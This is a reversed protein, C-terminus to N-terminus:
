IASRKFADANSLFVTANKYSALLDLAGPNSKLLDNYGALDPDTAILTKLDVAACSLVAITLFILSHKLLSM